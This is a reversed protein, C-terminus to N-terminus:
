SLHKFVFDVVVCASSFGSMPCAFFTAPFFRNIGYSGLDELFKINPDRVIIIIFLLQM